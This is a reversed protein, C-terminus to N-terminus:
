IISVYHLFRGLEKVCAEKDETRYEDKLHHVEVKGSSMGLALLQKHSVSERLEPNVAMCLIDEDEFQVTHAPYIDGAGLDWLHVRSLNDLVVFVCPRSQSWLLQLIPQGDVTGPWSILPREKSLQHLRVSGDDSGVLMYGEGFPCTAISRCASLTDFEPKYARPNPRHDPNQSSLHITHSNDTAVFMSTQDVELDFSSIDLNFTMSKVMRVSGWHALGLHQDFDRQSGLVTWILLIGREELTALQFTANSDGSTLIKMSTVKSDHGDESSPSNTTFTPSRFIWEMESNTSVEQHISSHERLDWAAIVGDQSGAFAISAKFPSFIIASIDGSNAVLVKQPQSPQSVNWVCLFVRSEDEEEDEEEDELAGHATILLAAQDPAFALQTVSRDHLFDFDTNLLTVRDSFEVDKQDQGELHGQNKQSEEELLTLLAPGATNLFKSLRESNSHDMFQIHSNSKSDSEQGGSGRLTDKVLQPDETAKLSLPAAPAQTWKSLMETFM